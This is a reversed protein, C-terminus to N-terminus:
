YDKLINFKEYSKTFAERFSLIPDQEKNTLYDIAGLPDRFKGAM